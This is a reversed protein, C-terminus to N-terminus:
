LEPDGFDPDHLLNQDGFDHDCLDRDDLCTCDWLMPTRRRSLNKERSPLIRRLILTYFQRAPMQGAGFLVIGKGHLRQQLSILETELEGDTLWQPEAPRLPPDFWDRIAQVPSEEWLIMDELYENEQEVTMEALELWEISEDYYAEYVDRFESNRCITEVLSNKM